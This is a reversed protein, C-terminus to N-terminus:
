LTFLKTRIKEVSDVAGNTWGQQYSCLEGVVFVNSIPNQLSKVISNINFTHLPKFCHVGTDWYHYVIDDIPTTTPVIKQLEEFIIEKLKKKNDLYKKFNLAYQMDCYASMLIKDNIVIIKRLLNKGSVINFGGINEGEFKHGDKHFTYIRLLNANQIYDDYSINLPLNQTLSILPKIPLAFIIRRSVYLKKSTSIEFLQTNENIAVNTVFTNLKYNLGKKINMILEDWDFFVKLSSGLSDAKLTYYKVHYNIDGGAYDTYGSHDIYNKRFIKGFYKDLFDSFSLSTLDSNLKSKLELYKKRVLEIGESHDYSSKSSKSSEILTRSSKVINHKIKFKKILNFIHKDSKHIIGAGMSIKKQHFMEQKIRGGLYDNQELLLIKYKSQLIHASYL